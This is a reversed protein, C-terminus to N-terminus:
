LGQAFAQAKAALSDRYAEAETQATIAAAM